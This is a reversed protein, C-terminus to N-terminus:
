AYNELNKLKLIIYEELHLYMYITMNRGEYLLRKWIEDTCIYVYYGTNILGAEASEKNLKKIIKDSM